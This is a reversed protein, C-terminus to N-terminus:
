LSGAGCGPLISTMSRVPIGPTLLRRESHDTLMFPFELMQGSRLSMKMMNSQYHSMPPEPSHRTWLWINGMVWVTGM